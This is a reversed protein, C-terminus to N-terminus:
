RQHCSEAYNFWARVQRPGHSGVTPTNALLSAAAMSTQMLAPRGPVCAPRSTTSVVLHPQSWCPRTLWPQWVTVWLFAVCLRMLMVPQSRGQPWLRLWMPHLRWCMPQPSSGPLMGVRCARQVYWSPQGSLPVWGPRTKQSQRQVVPQLPAKSAPCCRCGSSVCGRRCRCGTSAVWPVHCRHGSRRLTSRDNTQYVASIWTRVTRVPHSLAWFVRVLM